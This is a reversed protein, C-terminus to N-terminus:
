SMPSPAAPDFTEWTDGLFPFDTSGPPPAGAGGFLVYRNRPSDFALGAAMRAQPGMDQRETWHQGNWQWTGGFPVIPSSTAIGGGFLLVTLGDCEASAAEAAPPGFHAVETWAAGDWAWTDALAASAPPASLGGFVLVRQGAVDFTMAHVYRAEPGTDALQTWETGDWAWTDDLVNGANDAGGFLVVQERVADYALGNLARAVPGTDAVQTWEAGDWEWTDAIAGTVPFGGLLVVRERAADFAM